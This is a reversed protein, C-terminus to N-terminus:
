RDAGNTRRSRDRAVGSGGTEPEKGESAWRELIRQIYKWNRRNYAVAQRFAEEIWDGAYRREAESLEEVILPTLMGVNQEYLQFINSRNARGTPEEPPVVVQGVDCVSRQPKVEPDQRQRDSGDPPIAVRILSVASRDAKRTLRIHQQFVQCGADRGRVM